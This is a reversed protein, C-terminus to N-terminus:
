PKFSPYRANNGAAVIVTSQGTAVDRVMISDNAYALMSGTGSWAPYSGDVGLPTATGGSPAITHLGAGTGGRRFAIQTGDPSWAPYEENAANMSINTQNSGDNGMVFIEFNGSMAHYAIQSGNPSWSPSFDLGGSTLGQENTGNASMTYISGDRSFAIKMGDASWAPYIDEATNMTLQVVNGGTADMTFLESDGDRDSTFLIKTGDPSFNPDGDDGTFAATLNTRGTGDTNVIWIDQNGSEDSRFVIRGNCTALTAYTCAGPADIPPADQQGPADVMKSDGGGCASACVLTVTVRVTWSTM